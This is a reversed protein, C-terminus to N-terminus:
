SSLSLSLLGIRYLWWPSLTVFAMLMSFSSCPWACAKSIPLWKHIDTGSHNQHPYIDTLSNNLRTLHFHYLLAASPFKHSSDWQPGNVNNHWVLCQMTTIRSPALSNVDIGKKSLKAANWFCFHLKKSSREIELNLRNNFLHFFEREPNWWSYEITGLSKIIFGNSLFLHEFSSLPIM